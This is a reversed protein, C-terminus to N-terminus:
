LGLNYVNRSFISRFSVLRWLYNVYHKDTCFIIPVSFGLWNKWLIRCYKRRHPCQDFLLSSPIFNGGDKPYLGPCPLLGIEKRYVWLVSFSLGSNIYTLPADWFNHKVICSFPSFPFFFSHGFARNCKCNIRPWFKTFTDEQSMPTHTAIFRSIFNNIFVTKKSFSGQSKPGSPFPAFRLVLTLHMETHIKNLM